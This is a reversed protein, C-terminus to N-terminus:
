KCPIHIKKPIFCLEPKFESFLDGALYGAANTGARQFTAPWTRQERPQYANSLGAAAFSAPAGSFNPTTSNLLLSHLAAHGARRWFTGSRDPTYTADHGFMTPFAFDRIFKGSINDALGIGYHEGYGLAGNDFGAPRSIFQSFAASAAPTLFTGPSAVAHAFQSFNEAPTQAKALGALAIFLITGLWYRGWRQLGAIQRCRDRTNM